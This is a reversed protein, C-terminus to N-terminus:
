NHKSLGIIPEGFFTSLMAITRVTFNHQGSLWKTIESPRKGLAQAFEVKTLGRQMMLEHIRNSIEFEMNVEQQIAPSTHSLMEEFSTNIRKM